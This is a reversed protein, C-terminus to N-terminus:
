ISQIVCFSIQRRMLDGVLDGILNLRRHRCRKLLLCLLEDRRHGNSWNVFVKKQSNGFFGPLKIYCKSLYVFTVNPTKSLYLEKMLNQSGSIKLASYM